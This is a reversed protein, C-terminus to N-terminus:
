RWRFGHFFRTHIGVFLSPELCTTKSRKASLRAWLFVSLGRGADETLLLIPGAEAKRKSRSTPQTGSPGAVATTPESPREVAEAETESHSWLIAEEESSAPSPDLSEVESAVDLQVDSACSMAEMQGETVPVTPEGTPPNAPAPATAEAAVRRREARRQRSPKSPAVSKAALAVVSKETQLPIPQVTQSQATPKEASAADLKETPHIQAQAAQSASKETQLNSTCTATCSLGGRAEAVDQTPGCTVLGSTSGQAEVGHAPDRTIKAGEQWTSLAM